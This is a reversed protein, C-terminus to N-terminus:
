GPGRPCCRGADDGVAVVEVFGAVDEFPDDGDIAGVDGGGGLAALEGGGVAAWASLLRAAVYGVPQRVEPGVDGLLDEGDLLAADLLLGLQARQPVLEGDAFLLLGSRLAAEVRVLRSEVCRVGRGSGRLLSCPHDESPGEVELATATARGVAFVAVSLLFEGLRLLVLCGALIGSSRGAVGDVDRGRPDALHALLDTRDLDELAPVAGDFSRVFEPCHESRDVVPLM